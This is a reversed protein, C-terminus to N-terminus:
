PLGYQSRRWARGLERARRRVTKAPLHGPLAAAAAGPRNSFPFIQAYDFLGSQLVRRTDRHEGETESPFGAIIQTGLSVGPAQERIRGLAPLVHHMLYGRRMLKLIRDSGSQLPAQLYAIKGSQLLPILRREQTRLWRPDYFHLYLTFNGDIRVLKELLDPFEVGVDKGFAGIDESTLVIRRTGRAVVTRVHDTILGLPLSTTSGKAMPIVCFSCHGLCGRSISLAYGHPNAAQSAALMHKLFPVRRLSVHHDVRHFLGAVRAMAQLKWDGGEFGETGMFRGRPDSLELFQDEADDICLLYALQKEDSPAFYECRYHEQLRAPSIGAICGTVILKASERAESECKRILALSQEEKEQNFACSDFLIIDADAASSARAAGHRLIFDEYRNFSIRSATCSLQGAVYLRKGGLRNSLRSSPPPSAAKGLFHVLPASM